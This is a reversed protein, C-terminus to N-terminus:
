GGFILRRIPDFIKLWWDMVLMIVLVLAGTSIGIGAYKVKRAEYKLIENQTNFKDMQQKQVGEVYKDIYNLRREFDDLKVDINYLTAKIMDLTQKEEAALEYRVPAPEAGAQPGRQRRPAPTPEADAYIPGTEWGAGESRTPTGPVTWAPQPAEEVDPAQMAVVEMQQEADADPGRYRSLSDLMQEHDGYRKGSESKALEDNLVALLQKVGSLRAALQQLQKELWPNTKSIELINSEEEGTQSRAADLLARLLATKMDRKVAMKADYVAEEKRYSKLPPFGMFNSHEKGKLLDAMLEASARSVEVKLSPASYKFTIATSSNPLIFARVHYPFGRFFAPRAAEPYDPKITGRYAEIYSQLYKEVVQETIGAVPTEGMQYKQIESLQQENEALKEEGEMRGLEERLKDLPEGTKALKDAVALLQRDLWPNTKAIDKIQTEIESMGTRATELGTRYTSTRIDRALDIAADKAADEKTYNKMPPFALMGQHEKKQIAAKVADYKENVIEIRFTTANFRFLCAVAENPLIFARVQFPYGRAFAPVEEPKRAKCAEMYSEIYAKIYLEVSENTARAM